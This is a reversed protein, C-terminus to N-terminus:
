EEWGDRLPVYLTPREEEIWEDVNMGSWKESSKVFTRVREPIPTGPLHGSMEEKTLPTEYARSKPLSDIPAGDITPPNTKHYIIYDPNKTYHFPNEDFVTGSFDCCGVNAGFMNVSTMTCENFQSGSLDTLYFETNEFEAFTFDINILESYETKRAINFCMNRLYSYRFNFNHIKFGFFKLGSFNLHDFFITNRDLTVKADIESIAWLIEKMTNLTYEDNTDDLKVTSATSRHFYRNMVRAIDNLQDDKTFDSKALNRLINAGLEHKKKNDDFLYELGSSYRETYYKRLEDIHRSQSDRDFLIARWILVGLAITALLLTALDILLNIDPLCNFINTTNQEM